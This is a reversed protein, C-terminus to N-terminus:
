WEPIVWTNQWYPKCNWHQARLQALEICYSTKNLPCIYCEWSLVLGGNFTIWHNEGRNWFQTCSWCRVLIQWHKLAMTHAQRSQQIDPSLLHSYLSPPLCHFISLSISRTELLKTFLDAHWTLVQADLQFKPDLHQLCSTDWLSNSVMDVLEAKWFQHASCSVNYEAVQQPSLIEQARNAHHQWCAKGITM